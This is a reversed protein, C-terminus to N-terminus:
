FKSCIRIESTGNKAIIWGKGEKEQLVQLSSLPVIGENETYLKPNRYDNDWGVYLYSNGDRASFGIKKQSSELLIGGKDVVFVRNFETYVQGNIECRTTADAKFTRYPDASVSVPLSTEGGDKGRVIVTATGTSLGTVAFKTSSVLNVQAVSEDSSQVVYPAVGGSITIETSSEGEILSLSTQSLTPTEPEPIIPNEPETVPNKTCGALLCLIVLSVLVKKQKKM